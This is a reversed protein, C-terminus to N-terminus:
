VNDEITLMLNTHTTRVTLDDATGGSRRATLKITHSGASTLTVLWQQSTGERMADATTNNTGANWVLQEGEAVGDVYLEGVLAGTLPDVGVAEADILASAVVDVNDRTTTFTHSLGPIDTVTTTVSAIASSATLWVRSVSLRGATIREGANWKM